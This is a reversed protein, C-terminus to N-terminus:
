KSCIAPLVCTWVIIGLEQYRASTVTSMACESLTFIGQIIRDMVTNMAALNEASHHSTEINLCCFTTFVHICNSVPSMRMLPNTNGIPLSM